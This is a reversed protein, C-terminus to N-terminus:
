ALVDKMWATVAAPDEAATIARGVIIIDPHTAAAAEFTELGIGGALALARKGRMADVLGFSEGASAHGALRADTGTHLAIVSVAAPLEREMVAPPNAETLTDLVVHKGRRQAQDSVTTLTAASACSLATIYNAGADFLMASEQAGGDVTKSDALIDADPALERITPLVGLGFRKLLPTGVEVIDVWQAVGPLIGLASPFDLALQLRTMQTGKWGIRGDAKV